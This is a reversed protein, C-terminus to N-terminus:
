NTFTLPAQNQHYRIKYRTTETQLILESAGLCLRLVDLNKATFTVREKLNHPTGPNDITAQHSFLHDIFIATYLEKLEDSTFHEEQIENHTAPITKWSPSSKQITSRQRKTLMKESLARNQRLRVDVPFSKKGSPTHNSEDVLPFKKDIKYRVSYRGNRAIQGFTQRHEVKESFTVHKEISPIM